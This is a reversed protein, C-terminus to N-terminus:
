SALPKGTQAATIVEIVAESVQQAYQEDGIISGHNAGDIVRTSSNSSVIPVSKWIAELKTRDEPATIEPHAAWLIVLPLAGLDHAATVEQGLEWQALRFEADWADVARVTSKFAILEAAIESPYGYEQFERGIIIRGAGTRVLTMLLGYATENQSKWLDYGSKEPWSPPIASDVMVIGLVEGPYESAYIPSLVGGLSHGVLVYPGPEGAAQLLKHLDHVINLSDRPTPGPESWGNGARDYACVRNTPSLQQQVWYWESSFSFAGAELVITPSGAGQCNIHMKHGDVDFPQGPPLYTQRDSSEAVAQYVTGLLPIVILLAVLIILGRKVYTLCGRKRRVDNTLGDGPPAPAIQSM